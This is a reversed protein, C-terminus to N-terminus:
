RCEKMINDKLATTYVQILKSVNDPFSLDKNNIALEKEKDFLYSDAKNMSIIEKLPVIHITRGDHIGIHVLNDLAEENDKLSLFPLISITYSNNSTRIPSIIFMSERKVDTLKSGELKYYGSPSRLYHVQKNARKDYREIIKINGSKKLNEFLDEIEKRVNNEGVKEKIEVDRIDTLTTSVTISANRPLGYIWTHIHPAPDRINSKFSSKLVSKHIVNLVDIIDNKNCAEIIQIRDPGNSETLPALPVHSEEWGNIRNCGKEIERFKEYFKNFADIIKGEIVSSCIDKAVTDNCEAPIFRGFGRNPSFGIGLFAITILVGGVVIEDYKPDDNSRFIELTFNMDRPILNEQEKGRIIVNVRNLKEYKKNPISRSDSVKFIYLSKRNGSGLYEFVYSDAEDYSNLNKVCFRNYVTRLFWRLKGVIGDEDVHDSTYGRHDRGWWPTVGVFNIRAVRKSRILEEVEQKLEDLNVM